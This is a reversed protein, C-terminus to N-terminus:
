SALYLLSHWCSGMSRFVPKVSSISVTQRDTQRDMETHPQSHTHANTLLILISAHCHWCCIIVPNALGNWTSIQSIEFWFHFFFHLFFFHFKPDLGLPHDVGFDNDVCQLHLTFGKCISIRQSMWVDVVSSKMFMLGGKERKSLETWIRDSEILENVTIVDCKFKEKKKEDIWEM